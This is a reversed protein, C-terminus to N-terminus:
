IRYNFRLAVSRTEDVFAYTGGGVSAFASTSESWNRVTKDGLNKGVLSVDWSGDIAAFTLTADYKTYGDEESFPHRTVELGQEAVNYVQFRLGFEITDNIARDYSFTLALTHDPAFPPTAGALDQFEQASVGDDIGDADVNCGQARTQDAFGPITWCAGLFDDYETNNIAGNLMVTIYQSAIWTLDFEIGTASADGNVVGQTITVPDNSSLQIGDIETNYISWNLRLRRDFLDHKGGLEINFSEEEDFVFTAMGAASNSNGRINFGGSKFGTGASLYIMSSGTVEWQLATNWSVNNDDIDGLLPVDADLAVDYFCGFLGGARCLANARIDTGYVAQWQNKFGEREESTWRLGTSLSWTESLFWDVQGFVSLSDTEVTALERRRATPNTRVAHHDFDQSFELDSTFYNVGAMWDRQAGQSALRFEQSFQDYDEENTIVRVNLGTAGTQFDSDFVDVMDYDVYSTTSTLTVEENLDWNVTLGFLESELQFGEEAIFDSSFVAPVGAAEASAAHNAAAIRAQSNNRANIRCDEGIFNPSAFARAPDICAMERPKGERDYDSYQYLFEAAVYDSVSWDLILRASVDEKQRHDDGTPANKTWGEQDKVNIVLRGLLADTLAGSAIAQAEYGESAEFNYGGSFIFETEASPKNPTINIAGLSTNKGIIPGQPGRLLEIQAVDILANRGLRARTTFFGNFLQGVAQELHPGSGVTGLGRMILVDGAGPAQSYGFNPIQPAFSQMDVIGQTQVTEGSYAKVSAPIDQLNEPKKRATVVIEELVAQAHSAPPAFLGAIPVCLLAPFIALTKNM